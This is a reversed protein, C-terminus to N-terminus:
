SKGAVKKLVNGALQMWSNSKLKPCVALVESGILLALSAYASIEAIGM